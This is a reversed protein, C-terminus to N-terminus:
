PDVPETDAFFREESAVYGAVLVRYAAEVIDPLSPLEASHAAALARVQAFVAAQREASAVEFSSRKFRTADRVLRGREALLEVVRADLADIRARLDGLTAAIPRVAPDRFRRVAPTDASPEATTM